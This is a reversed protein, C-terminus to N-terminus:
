QTAEEKGHTVVNDQVTEESLKKRKIRVNTLGLSQTKSILNQNSKFLRKNLSKLKTNEVKLKKSQGKQPDTIFDLAQKQMYSSIVENTYKGKPN